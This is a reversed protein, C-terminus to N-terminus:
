GLIDFDSPMLHHFYHGVLHILHALWIWQKELNLRPHSLHHTLYPPLFLLLHILAIIQSYM